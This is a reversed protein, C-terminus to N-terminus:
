EGLTLTNIEDRIVSVELESKKKVNEGLFRQMKTCLASFENLNTNDVSMRNGTFTLVNNNRLFSEHLGPFINSRMDVSTTSFDNFNLEVHFTFTAGKGLESEVKLDGRLENCIKKCTLLGLGVGTPNLHLSSKGIFM